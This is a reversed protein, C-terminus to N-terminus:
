HVGFLQIFTLTLSTDEKKRYHEMTTMWIRMEASVLFRTMLALNMALGLAQYQPRSGKALDPKESNHLISLGAPHTSPNMLSSALVATLITCDEWTPVLFLTLHVSLLMICAKKRDLLWVSVAHSNYCGRYRGWANRAQHKSLIKAEKYSWEAQPQQCHQWCLTTQLNVGLSIVTYVYRSCSSRDKAVSSGSATTYSRLPQMLRQYQWLRNAPHHTLWSSQWFTKSLTM